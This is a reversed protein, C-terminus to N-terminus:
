PLPNYGVQIPVGNCDFDVKDPLDPIDTNLGFVNFGKQYECTGDPSIKISVSWDLGNDHVITSETPTGVCGTTEIAKPVVAEDLPVKTIVGNVCAFLRYLTKTTSGLTGNGDNFQCSYFDQVWFIQDTGGPLLCDPYGPKWDFNDFNPPQQSRRVRINQDPPQPNPDENKPVVRCDGCDETPADRELTVCVQVEPNGAIGTVYLTGTQTAAYSGEESIEKEATDGCGYEIFMKAKRDADDITIPNGAADTSCNRIYYSVTEGATVDAIQRDVGNQARVMAGRKTPDNDYCLSCEQGTCKEDNACACDKDGNCDTCAFDENVVPNRRTTCDSWAISKSDTTFGPPYQPFDGPRNPMDDCVVKTEEICDIVDGNVDEICCAGFEPIPCGEGSPMNNFPPEFSPDCDVGQTFSSTIQRTGGNYPEIPGDNCDENLSNVCDYWEVSLLVGQDDKIVENYCCRGADSPDCCEARCEQYSEYDQQLESLICQCSDTCAFGCSCMNGNEDTSMCCAQYTPYPGKPRDPDTPDYELDGGRQCEGDICFFADSSPVCRGDVCVCGEACDATSQCPDGICNAECRVQGSGDNLPIETYGPPCSDRIADECRGNICICNPYYKCDWDRLCPKRDCVIDLVICCCNLVLAGAETLLGGALTSLSM